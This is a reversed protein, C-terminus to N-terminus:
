IPSVWLDAAGPSGDNGMDGPAFGGRRQEGYTRAAAHNGARATTRASTRLGKAAARRSRRHFGGVFRLAHLRRRLARAPMRVGPARFVAPREAGDRPPENGDRSQPPLKRPSGRTSGRTRSRTGARLTHRDADAPSRSAAEGRGALIGHAVPHTQPRRGRATRRRRRHVDRRVLRRGRGGAGTRGAGRRTRVREGEGGGSDESTAHRARPQNAAPTQDRAYQAGDRGLSDGGLGAAGYFSNRSGHLSGKSILRFDGARLLPAAAEANRITVLASATRGAAPSAPM